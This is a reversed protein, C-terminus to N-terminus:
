SNKRRDEGLYVRRWVKDEIEECGTDEGRRIREEGTKGDLRNAGDM